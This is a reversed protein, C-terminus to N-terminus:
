SNVSPFIRRLKLELLIHYVPEQVTCERNSLYAKAITKMNDNYRMKNEFVKM